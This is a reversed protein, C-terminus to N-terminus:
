VDKQPIKINKEILLEKVFHITDLSQNLEDATWDSADVFIVSKALLASFGQDDTISSMLREKMENYYKKVREFEGHKIIIPDRLPYGYCDVVIGIKQMKDDVNLQGDTLHFGKETKTYIM